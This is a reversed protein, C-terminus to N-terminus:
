SAKQVIHELAIRIFKQYDLGSEKAKEKVAHLLDESIRITVTRNKPKLEFRVRQWQGSSLLSSMDQDLPDVYRKSRSLKRSTKM